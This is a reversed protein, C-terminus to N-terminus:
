MARFPHSRGCFVWILPHHFLALWNKFRYVENVVDGGNDQQEDAEDYYECDGRNTDDEDDYERDDCNDDEDGSLGLRDSNIAAILDFM